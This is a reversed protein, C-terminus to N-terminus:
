TDAQKNVIALNQIWFVPGPLFQGADSTNNKCDFVRSFDYYLDTQTSFASQCLDYACHKKVWVFLTQNFRWLSQIEFVFSGTPGGSNACIMGGQSVECRCGVSSFM